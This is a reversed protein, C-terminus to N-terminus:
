QQTFGSSKHRSFSRLWINKGWSRLSMSGNGVQLFVCGNLSSQSLYWIDTSREWNERKMKSYSTTREEYKTCTVNLGGRIAITKMCISTAVTKLLRRYEDAAITERMIIRIWYDLRISIQDIWTHPKQNKSSSKWHPFFSLQLTM